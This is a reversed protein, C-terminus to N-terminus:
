LTLALVIAHDLFEFEFCLLVTFMGLAHGRQRLRLIRRGTAVHQRTGRLQEALEANRRIFDELAQEGVTRFFRIIVSLVSLGRRPHFRQRLNEAHDTVDRLGCSRTTAGTAGSGSGSHVRAGNRRFVILLLLGLSLRLSLCLRLSLGLLLSLLAPHKRRIHRLLESL